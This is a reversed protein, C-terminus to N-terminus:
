ITLMKKEKPFCTPLCSSLSPLNQGLNEELHRLERSAETGYVDMGWFYGSEPSRLDNTGMESFSQSRITKKRIRATLYSGTVSVRYDAKGFDCVIKSHERSRMIKLHVFFLRTGKFIGWLEIFTSFMSFLRLFSHWPWKHIVDLISLIALRICNIYLKLKQIQWPLCYELM